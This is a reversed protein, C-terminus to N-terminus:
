WEIIVSSHFEPANTIRILEDLNDRRVGGGPLIVIRNNAKKVLEALNDKGVIANPAHGSTLIRDFGLEILTELSAFMDPTQDFARHFTVQMPRALEIMQKCIAEDIQNHNTLVGLVVGDCKHQKCIEIDLLMTEIELKNYTFDGGRPRIMPFVPIKVYKKALAITAHSPTTGGEAMNACLEIRNAGSKEIAVCESVTRGIIELFPKM